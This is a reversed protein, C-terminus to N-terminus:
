PSKKEPQLISIVKHKWLEHNIVYIARPDDIQISDMCYVVADVKHFALNIATMQCCIDDKDQCVYRNGKVMTNSALVLRGSGCAPENVTVGWNEKNLTLQVMLDCITDPTFFQGFASKKYNSALLEYYTGLPDCWSNEGSNKSYFIMLEGFLRSFKELEERNYRSIIEFYRNEQTGHALCCIVIELFDRYVQSVDHRTILSNFVSNFERLETPVERSKIM